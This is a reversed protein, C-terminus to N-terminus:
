GGQQGQQGNGQQGDRQGGQDQQSGGQQSGSQQGGQSTNQNQNTMRLEGSTTRLPLVSAFLQEQAARCIQAGEIRQYLFFFECSKFGSMRQRTRNSEDDRSTMSSLMSFETQRWEAPQSRSLRPPFELSRM